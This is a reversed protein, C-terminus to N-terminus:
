RWGIKAIVEMGCSYVGGAERSSYWTTKRSCYHSWTSPQWTNCLSPCFHIVCIRMNQELLCVCHFSTSAQTFLEMSIVIVIKNHWAENKIITSKNVPIRSHHVSSLFSHEMVSHILVSFFPHFCFLQRALTNYAVLLYPISCGLLEKTRSKVILRLFCAINRSVM